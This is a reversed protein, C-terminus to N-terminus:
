DMEAGAASEDAGTGLPQVLEKAKATDRKAREEDGMWEYIGGLWILWEEGATPMPAARIPKSRKRFCRLRPPTIRKSCYRKERPSCNRKQRQWLLRAMSAVLLSLESWRVWKCM